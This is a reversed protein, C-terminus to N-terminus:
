GSPEARWDPGDLEVQHCMEQLRSYIRGRSIERVEELDVNTTCITFREEGYRGDILDYLTEEEWETGRQVGIDDVVLYTARVLRELIQYAQGHQQSDESFTDRLRHFFGRSLSIFRGPRQRRLILENLIIAATHSKGTGPRGYLFLGRRPREKSTTLQDIYQRIRAVRPVPTGDPARDLLHQRFKFRFKAPLQAARLNSTTVRLRQRYWRCPCEQSRSEEDFYFFPARGGCRCQDLVCRCLELSGTRGAASDPDFIVGVDHCRSCSM